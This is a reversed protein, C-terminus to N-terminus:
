AAERAVVISRLREASPDQPDGFPHPHGEPNMVVAPCVFEFRHARVSDRVARTSVPTGIIVRRPSGLKLAEAAALMKWPVSTHGDIVVVTKGEISRLPRQGRFLLRETKVSRRASDLADSLADMMGFRPQYQSNLVADADEAVAGIIGIDKLRIHAAVVVNFSCGIAKAANAAIEVGSSTVGFVLASPGTRMNLQLGLQAGAGARSPYLADQQDSSGMAGRIYAPRLVIGVAPQAFRM